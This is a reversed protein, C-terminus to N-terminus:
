DKLRELLRRAAVLAPARLRRGLELAANVRAAFDAADALPHTSATPLDDLAAALGPFAQPIWEAGQERLRALARTGAAPDIEGALMGRAIREARDRDLRGPRHTEYIVSALATADRFANPASPDLDRLRRVEEPALLDELAPTRALCDVWEELPLEGALFRDFTQWVTAM